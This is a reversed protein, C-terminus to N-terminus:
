ASPRHAPASPLAHLGAPLASAVRLLQDFVIPKVLYHDFGADMGSRVEHPMGYGTVAISPKGPQHQRWHRVLDLGSGDPLGIDAILLDFDGLGIMEIAPKLSDVSTLTHGQDRLLKCVAEATDRHDEVCLIHLARGEM